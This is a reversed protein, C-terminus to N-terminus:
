DQKKCCRSSVERELSAIRDTMDRRLEDEAMYRNQHKLDDKTNQLVRMLGFVGFGFLIASGVGAAAVWDSCEIKASNLFVGVLVAAAVFYQNYNNDRYFM